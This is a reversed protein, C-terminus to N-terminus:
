FLDVLTTEDTHRTVAQWYTSSRPLDNRRMPDRGIIKMVLAFPLILLYFFSALLIFNIIIHIRRTLMAWLRNLPMLIGPIVLSMILFTGSCIVAWKLFLGFAFWGVITFLIFITAFVLGFKRDSLRPQSM